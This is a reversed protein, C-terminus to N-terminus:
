RLSVEPQDMGRRASPGMSRASSRVMATDSSTIMRPTQTSIRLRCAETFPRAIIATRELSGAAAVTPTDGVVVLSLIKAMEAAMAPRPPTSSADKLWDAVLKLVGASLPRSHSAVTTSNPM